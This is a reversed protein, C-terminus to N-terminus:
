WKRAALRLEWNGWRELVRFGLLENVRVMHVNSATNWTVVRRVGPEQQRLWPLMALKLLLGLRRGRHEPLVVTDAQRAWGGPEGEVFVQTLGALAGSDHHRAVVVYSRQGRMAMGKEVKRVRDADWVEPEWNRLDIPADSMAGMLAAVGELQWAPTPGAWSDLSYGAAASRAEAALRAHAAEDIADLDLAQRVEASAREAGAGACFAPGPSADAVLGVALRRGRDRICDLALQLLRRGHGRRREGPRVFLSLVGAHTNDRDPFHVACAAAAGPGDGRWGLWTEISEGGWGYALWTRFAPFSMSPGHPADAAMVDRYVAFFARLADESASPDFAEARLSTM